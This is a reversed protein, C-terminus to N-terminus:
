GSCGSRTQRQGHVRPQRRGKQGRKRTEETVGLRAVRAVQCRGHGGVRAPRGRHRVRVRLTGGRVEPSGGYRGQPELGFFVYLVDGFPQLHYLVRRVATHCDLTYLKSTDITRRTYMHIYMIINITYMQQSKEHRLASIVHNANDNQKLM